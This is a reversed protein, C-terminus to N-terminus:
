EKGQAVQVTIHSCLAGTAEISMLLLHMVTYLNREDAWFEGDALSAYRRIKELNERIEQAHSKVLEENLSSM